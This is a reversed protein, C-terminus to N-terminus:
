SLSQSTTGLITLITEDQEHTDGVQRCMELINKPPVETIKFPQELLKYTFLGQNIKLSIQVTVQGAIEINNLNKLTVSLKDITQLFHRYHITRKIIIQNTEISTEPTFLHFDSVDDKLRLTIKNLLDTTVENPQTIEMIAELEIKEILATIDPQLEQIKPAAFTQFIYPQTWFYETIRMASTQPQNSRKFITNGEIIEQDSNLRCIKLVPSLKIPQELLTNSHEIENIYFYLKIALNGVFDKDTRNSLKVNFGELNDAFDQYNLQYKITFSQNDVITESSDITIEKSNGQLQIVLQKALRDIQSNNIQSPTIKVEIFFTQNQIPEFLKFPYAVQSRTTLQITPVLIKLTYFTQAPKEQDIIAKAIKAQRWYKEPDRDNLTLQVQFYNPFNDFNDFVEVKKGFGANELYIGLIETLGAKTGRKRYLGVIQQIFARKVDVPWDDRLSLAVWGALWPLFEEPTKQRKDTREEPPIYPNFYLHINDIIEELGPPNQTDGTIIQEQSSTTSKGSLIKEFALLFKGLFIDEQLIAPLYQQYASVSESKKTNM